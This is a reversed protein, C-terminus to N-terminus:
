SSAFVARGIERLRLRKGTLLASARFLRAALWLGGASALALLALSLAIQWAPVPTTSLRMMMTTPATLPLFSLGLAVPGEPDNLLPGMLMLPVAAPLTFVVQLQSSEKVSPSIAGVGAMLTAFLTYGLIFYALALVWVHGPVSLSALAAFMSSGTGLLLRAAGLWLLLQILGLLGLGLVKGALLERPTITSLLVEITRNEKEEVVAQLLIGSSMFISMSLILTFALALMLNADKSEEGGEESLAAKTSVAKLQMPRTLRLASAADHDPVLNILLLLEFLDRTDAGGELSPEGHYWTVKGSAVYDAPLVYLLSIEGQELAARGAEEGPYARVFGAPFVEPVSKITDSHDVYGFPQLKNEQIQAPVAGVGQEALPDKDAAQSSAFVIVAMLAPVGLTALYFGRKRLHTLLERLAIILFTPM